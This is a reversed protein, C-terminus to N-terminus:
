ERGVGGRSSWPVKGSSIQLVIGRPSRQRERQIPLGQPCPGAWTLCAPLQEEIM